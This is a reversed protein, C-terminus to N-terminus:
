GRNTWPARRHGATRALIPHRKRALRPQHPAAIKIRDVAGSLAARTGVECSEKAGISQRLAAESEADLFREAARYHAITDPPAQALDHATVPPLYGRSPVDDDM